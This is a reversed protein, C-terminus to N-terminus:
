TKLTRSVLRHERSANDQASTAEARAAVAAAKSVAIDRHSRLWKMALHLRSRVTAAPIGLESSIQESTMGLMYRRQLVDRYIQPMRELSGDLVLDLEPEAEDPAEAVRTLDALKQLLAQERQRARAQDLFHNRLVKYLWAQRQHPNLNQLQNLHTIAKVFTEQVLDNAHESDMALRLAYRQLRAEHEEFLEAITFAAQSGSWSYTL